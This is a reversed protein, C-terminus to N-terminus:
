VAEPLPEIIRPDHLPLLPRQRLNGLYAYIWIGGVGVFAAIDTWYFEFGKQRFTPEVLWFMYIMHACLIWVAVRLLRVPNKKRPESLLALFPFFFMTLGVVWTLVRWFGKTRQIYYGIEMPLNGPWIIIIQSASLYTWFIVFAFILKGIDHLLKSNIRGGFRDEKSSVVIVLVTLCFAQLINGILVLAGFVTSYFETETSMIWDIYAFTGTLTFVLLGPASIQRLRVIISPDGTQDQQDTLKRISRFFLMWVVFYFVFRGIFMPTNLYSAKHAVVPNRHVLDNAWPYLYPLGLLIPLFLVAVVPLTRAKAELLRRITVGWKGGVVNNLLLVAMGGIAFGGWYLFAFLYSQFFHARDAFFGGVCLLLGLGGIYGSMREVSVARPGLHVVPVPTHPVAHASM